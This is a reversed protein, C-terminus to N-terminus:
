EVITPDAPFRDCNGYSASGLKLCFPEVLGRPGADGDPGRAGPTGDAGNKAPPCIKEVDQLGAIGGKGAPGGSGGAGGVGGEGPITTPKVQIASANQIEVYFRGTNGGRGGPYGKGGPGGGRGDEGNTPAELCTRRTGGPLRAVPLLTNGYIVIDPEQVTHSKGPRGPAGSEGVAGPNGTQGPGASQGRSEIFLTGAGTKARILIMGGSLGDRGQLGREDAPFTEIVGDDSIIEDAAIELAKDRTVLRSGKQFFLRHVNKLSRFVQTGAVVFDRPVTVTVTAVIQPEAGKLTALFYRYTEGAAVGTDLYEWADKNLTALTRPGQKENERSLVWVEADNAPHKWDLAVQYAGPQALTKITARLRTEGRPAGDPRPPPVAQYPNAPTPSDSKKGCAPTMTTLVLACVLGRGAKQIKM